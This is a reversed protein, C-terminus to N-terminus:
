TGKSIVEKTGTKSEIVRLLAHKQMESLFNLSLTM